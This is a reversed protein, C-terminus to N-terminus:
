EVLIIFDLVAKRLASNYERAAGRIKQLALAKIKTLYEPFPNIIKRM